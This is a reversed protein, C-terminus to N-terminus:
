QTEATVLKRPVYTTAPARPMLSLSPAEARPAMSISPVNGSSGSIAKSVPDQGNGNFNHTPYRAELWTAWKGARKMLDARYIQNFQPTRSHYNSVRTWLDGRDNKIHMRLRWAALEFSYCGSAAVHEASIGYRALEQLYRTNFQLPGVDYSGNSRNRVWQGAKGNEKEAVALVINAPVEYKAASAISCVFREHMQPPLDIAM